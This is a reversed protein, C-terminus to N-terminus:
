VAWKFFSIEELMERLRGRQADTLGLLPPRPNGCDFGLLRMIEKVAGLSPFSLFASVTWNIKAQLEEAAKVNGSRFATYADVFVRPLVNETTGIAGDAGVAQASVMVEDAGSLVNFRGEDLEIIKRLLYMDYGTYKMGRLNPVTALLDRVLDVAVNVGTTAPINYIYFPLGSAAAVETYYQKVGEPGVNYYFPPISSTADAGIKAAHSALACAARTTLSGVHVVVPVRGKVQRVVADAVCRREEESMLLGE